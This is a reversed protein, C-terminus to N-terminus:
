QNQESPQLIALQIMSKRSADSIPFLLSAMIHKRVTEPIVRVGSKITKHSTKPPLGHARLVYVCRDYAKLSRGAQLLNLIATDNPINYEPVPPYVLKLLVYPEPLPMYDDIRMNKWPYDIGGTMNIFSLPLVLEGIKKLNLKDHLFMMIDHMEAPIYGHLPMIDSSKINGDLVRRLLVHEMNRLTTDHVNWVYSASKRFELKSMDIGELNERIPMVPNRQMSAISAALRFEATGDYCGIMWEKSLVNLPMIDKSMSTYKELHGISILVQMLNTNTPKTCFKMIQADLDRVLRIFSAPAGKERSKKLLHNYWRDIEELLKAVPRARVHIAGANVTLYAKGKRKLICYRQFKKIGRDTGLTIVARAFETGTRASKRGLHIRGEAFIHSIEAHTTPHEWVPMWIEGKSAPEGGEDTDEASATHYGVTSSSATFPFVATGRNSSLRKSISGACLLVGETMLIYDWPNSLKKGDFGNGFNPGGSGSPNHGMTTISALPAIEGFLSATLLARSKEQDGNRFTLMNDINKVFNEAMNFNGDNGGSGLIPAYKVKKIDVIGVADIWSIADDSLRNRCMCLLMEKNDDMEKKTIKSLKCIRKMDKIISDIVHITKLYADFRIKNHKAMNSIIDSSKQYVNYSWPSVIPTPRYEDLFFRIIEDRTMYTHITFKDCKWFSTISTDKTSLIRLVGLAKLYSSIPSINCGDLKHEESMNEIERRQAQLGIQM